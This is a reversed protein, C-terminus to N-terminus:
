AALPVWHDGPQKRIQIDQNDRKGSLSKLWAENKGHITKLLDQDRSLMGYILRILKDTAPSLELSETELKSFHEPTRSMLEAFDAAKKGVRKRLFKIEPGSLLGVKMVVSKAIVNMLQELAPIEAAQQGCKECTRYKIGSLYVNSLGSDLFHYPKAKTATHEKLHKGCEHAKATKETMRTDRLSM